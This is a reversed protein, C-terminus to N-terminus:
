NSVCRMMARSFEQGLNDLLATIESEAEQGRKGQRSLVNLKYDLATPVQLLQAFCGYAEKLHKAINEQPIELGRMREGLQYAEYNM